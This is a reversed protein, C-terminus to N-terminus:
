GPGCLDGFTSFRGDSFSKLRESLLRQLGPRSWSLQYEQVRDPRADRRYSAEIQDWLFFKFGFGNLGLLELDRILPQILRYTAAADNGTLETEDPKDILVYVSLFGISRVLKGLYELQTSTPKLSHRKRKAFQPCTLVRLTM